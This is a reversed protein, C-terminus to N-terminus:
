HRGPVSRIAAVNTERSNGPSHVRESDMHKNVTENLMDIEDQLQKVLSSVQTKFSEVGARTVNCSDRPLAPIKKMYDTTKTQASVLVAISIAVISFIIKKM